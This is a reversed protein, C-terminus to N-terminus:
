IFRKLIASVYNPHTDKMKTLISLVKGAELSHEGFFTLDDDTLGYKRKYYNGKNLEIIERANEEYYDRRYKEMDMTKNESKKKLPM